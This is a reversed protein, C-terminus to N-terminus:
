SVTMNPTHTETKRWVSPAYGFSKRFWSSFASLSCFGIMGAIDSLPRRGDRMHQIVANRRVEELLASYNVGAKALRRNLTRTKTGLHRAVIEASAEGRPLALAIVQTVQRVYSDSPAVDITRLYREVQRRMAPSSAPLERDLDRGPLVIGNFEHNFSMPCRFFRHFRLMSPPTPQSHMFCVQLPAWDEGLRWRLLSTISAVSGDIVQRRPSFSEVMVDIALIPNDEDGLHYYAASTHLHSYAFLTQLAARLTEEERLMLTIPGLDPLGRIEAIRLGFDDIGATLAAIEFLDNVASMPVILDPDELYRPHIGAQRMLALPDLGLSLALRRFVALISSRITTTLKLATM